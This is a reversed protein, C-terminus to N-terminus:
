IGNEDIFRELSAWGTNGISRACIIQFQQYLLQDECFIYFVFIYLTDSSMYCEVYFICVIRDV